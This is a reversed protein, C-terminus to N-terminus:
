EDFVIAPVPIDLVTKGFLRDLNKNYLIRTQGTTIGSVNKPM